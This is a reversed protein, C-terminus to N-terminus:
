HQDLYTKRVGLYKFEVLLTALSESLKQIVIDMLNLIYHVRSLKSSTSLFDSNLIISNEYNITTGLNLYFVNIPTQTPM